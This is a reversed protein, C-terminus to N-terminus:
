KSKVNTLMPKLLNLRANDSATLLRKKRVKNELERNWRRFAEVSTTTSKLNMKLAPVNQFLMVMQRKKREFSEVSSMLQSVRKRLTGNETALSRLM